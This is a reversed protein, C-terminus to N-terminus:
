SSSAEDTNNGQSNPLDSPGLTPTTVAEHALSVLLATALTQAHVYGLGGVLIVLWAWPQMGDPKIGHQAAITLLLCLLLGSPVLFLAAAMLGRRTRPIAFAWTRIATSRRTQAVAYAVWFVFCVLSQGM